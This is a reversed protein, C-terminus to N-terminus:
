LVTNIFKTLNEETIKADFDITTQDKVMKLTPYHDVNFKQVVEMTKADDTSSCDIGEDGGICNLTYGNVITQDYSSVFGKWAPLAKTCHPCWSANFFYIDANKVRRNANSIDVIQKKKTMPFSYVAITIFIVLLSVILIILKSRKYYLNSIIDTFKAM